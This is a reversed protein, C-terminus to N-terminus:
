WTVLVSGVTDIEATCGSPVLVTTFPDVILCPGDVNTGPPMSDRQYVQGAGGFAPIARRRLRVPGRVTSPPLVLPRRVGTVTASAVVAEVRHGLRTGYLTEHRDEFKRYMEAPDFTGMPAEISLETSQGVYRLTLHCTTHVSECDADTVFGRATLELEEWIRQLAPPDIDDLRADVSRSATDSFDATLLGFASLVSANPPALVSRAGAERAVEVVHQGGAGGFAVVTFERPDIGQVVTAQRIAQAMDANVVRRVGLAVEETSRGLHEALPQMAAEAADRDLSVGSVAAAPDLVGTILNADTVTPLTGGRGYCAPGPNSGASQPGVRLAGGEDVWAISGAGRGVTLVDISPTRAPIGWEVEIAQSTAPAGDRVVCVDFSTGGVDAGILNRLGTQTALWQLARAGAAPGSLLLSVPRDRVDRSPLLGGASHMFRVPRGLERDTRDVYSGVRPLAYANLATTSMRPYERMRPDVDSSLTVPLDPAIREFVGLVAREHRGSRHANFLAVAVAEAGAAVCARVASEIAADSIPEVETGDAALRGDVEFIRSRPIVHEPKRWNLDFLAHRMGTGITLVDRFGRTTILAARCGGRTLVLNTVLTTAHLVDDVTDIATGALKWAALLGHEPDPYTTLAKFTSLEGTSDDFLCLDTFTGGIDIGLRNM